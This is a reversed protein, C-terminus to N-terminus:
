VRRQVTVFLVEPQEAYSSIVTDAATHLMELQPFAVSVYAILALVSTVFVAAFRIEEAVFLYCPLM